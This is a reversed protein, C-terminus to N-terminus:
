GLIENETLTVKSRGELTGRHKNNTEDILGKLVRLNREQVNYVKSSRKCYDDFILSTTFNFANIGIVCFFYQIVVLLKPFTKRTLNWVGPM